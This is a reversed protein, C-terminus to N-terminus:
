QWTKAIIFLVAIFMQTYVPRQVSMFKWDIHTFYRPAQNNSCKILSHKAKYYVLLGDELTSPGNQM